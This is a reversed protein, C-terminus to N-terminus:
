QGCNHVVTPQALNDRAVHGDSLLGKRVGAKGVRGTEVDYDGVHTLSM